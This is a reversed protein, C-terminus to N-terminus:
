WVHLIEGNVFILFFVGDLPCCTQILFTFLFDLFRVVSMGKLQRNEALVVGGLKGSMSVARNSVISIELVKAIVSCIGVDM